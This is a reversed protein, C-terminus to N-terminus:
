LKGVLSKLLARTRALSAKNDDDTPFSVAVFETAGASAVDRIQQEVQSENGVIALDRPGSVGEIDLVRKYNPLAGYVAFLNAARQRATEPDDTVAVPLNAVVRPQPRGAEEAAKTLRPVIHSELTKPGVMWTITGGTREGAMKLMVPALAAIMVQPPEPTPVSAQANVRFMEGSYSVVGDTILPQLVNLYERMHLAPREYSLGWMAQVVPAHSLGLGLTFRGGTAAQVTLAQQAMITPHRVYTPVVATGFEIRSTKQGALAIVTLVEAGFVQGYWIGDFGDNESDIAAQVHSDVNPSGAYFTSLKM